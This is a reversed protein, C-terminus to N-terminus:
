NLPEVEDEDETEDIQTEPESEEDETSEAGFQSADTSPPVENQDVLDSSDSQASEEDAAEEDENQALIMAEEWGEPIKPTLLQAVHEQLLMGIAMLSSGDMIKYMDRFMYKEKSYRVRKRPPSPDEEEEDDDEDDEVEEVDGKDELRQVEGRTKDQTKSHLKALQRAKRNRRYDRTSNLLQGRENYYNSAFHHICKLLDSSPLPLTSPSDVNDPSLELFDLDQVIKRRKRAVGGDKARAKRNRRQSQGNDTSDDENTEEAEPELNPDIVEEAEESNEDEQNTRKSKYVSQFGAADRAIWNGRSDQITSRSTPLDLNTTSQKVRVLRGGSRQLRLSTYDFVTNLRPAAM